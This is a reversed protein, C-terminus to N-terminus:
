GLPLLHLGRVEVYDVKGGAASIQAAVEKAIHAPDCHSGAAAAAAEAWQIARPIALCAQRAEDSLRANRSRTHTHTHSITAYTLRCCPSAATVQPTPVSLAPPM